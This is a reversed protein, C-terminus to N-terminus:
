PVSVAFRNGGTPRRNPMAEFSIVAGGPHFFGISSDDTNRHVLGTTRFSISADQPDTGAMYEAENSLGDGDADAAPDSVDSPTGASFRSARFEEYSRPFIDAVGFNSAPLGGAQNFQGGFFLEHNRFAIATIAEPYGFIPTSLDAWVGGQWRRLHFGDVTSATVVYLDQHHPHIAWIKQAMNFGRALVLSWATGNWRYLGLTTGGAYLYHEDAALTTVEFFAPLGDLPVSNWRQEALNWRVIGRTIYDRTGDEQESERMYGAVYLHGGWITLSSVSVSNNYGGHLGGGLRHWRGDSFSYRGVNYLGRPPGDQMRGAGSFNGGVYVGTEHPLVAHVQRVLYDSANEWVGGGLPHWRGGAWYAINTAAVGAVHTFAGGLYIRNHGAVVHNAYGAVESNGSRYVLPGLDQWEGGNWVGVGRVPRSGGTESFSGAAYVQTPTATMSSIPGNLGAVIRFRNGETLVPAEEPLPGVGPFEWESRAGTLNIVALNRAPRHGAQSFEGGVWIREGDYELTRVVGDVGGALVVSSGSWDRGDWLALNSVLRGGASQFRGGVLIQGNFGLIAHIERTALEGTDALIEGVLGPLELISPSKEPLPITLIGSSREGL